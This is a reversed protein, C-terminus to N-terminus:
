CVAEHLLILAATVCRWLEFKVECRALLFSQLLCANRSFFNLHKVAGLDRAQDQTQTAMQVSNQRPGPPSRGPGLTNRGWEWHERSQGLLWRSELCSLSTFSFFFRHIFPTFSHIQGPFQSRYIYLQKLQEPSQELGQIIDSEVCM